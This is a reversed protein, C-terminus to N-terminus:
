PTAPRLIPRIFLRPSTGSGNIAFNRGTGDLPPLKGPEPARWSHEETLTDTVEIDAGIGNEGPAFHLRYARDEIGHLDAVGNTELLYEETFSRGSAANTKWPADIGM